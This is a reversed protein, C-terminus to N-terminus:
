KRCAEPLTLSSRNEGSTGITITPAPFHPIVLNTNADAGTLVLRLREDPALRAGIPQLFFRMRSFGAQDLPREASVVTGRSDSVPFGLTEYGPAGNTRHASNLVGDSLLELKGDATVRQLYGHLAVQPADSSVWIDVIPAGLFERPEEFPPSTLTLAGSSAHENLDPVVLPGLGIADHYRTQEGLGTNYDVTFSLPVGSQREGDTLGAEDLSYRTECQGLSLDTRRGWDFQKNATLLAYQFEPETRIGNDIGKLWYDAWRLQEIRRWHYSATERPDGAENPGHTWPGMMLKKPQSLNAHWFLTDVTAFDRWGGWNYVAIDTDAIRPALNALNNPGMEQVQTLMASADRTFRLRRLREAKEPHRRMLDALKQSSYVIEMLTSPNSTGAMEAVIDILEKAAPSQRMFYVMPNLAEPDNLREFRAAERVSGDTDADVRAVQVPVETVPNITSGETGDNTGDRQAERALWALGYKRLLGSGAWAAAYEDFTAVGPMIAQLPEPDTSAVLYQSMGEYSQGIMMVKGNSFPQKAIWDIVFKGDQAEQGSMDGLRLGFSAGTGRAEARVFAYGHGLLLGVGQVDGYKARGLADGIPSYSQGMPTQGVYHAVMGDPHETARWYRSYTFITPLPGEAVKGNKAPLYIDVALKTGDEVPVYISRREFGDYNATSYGLYCGPSSALDAGIQKPACGFTTNRWDGAAFDGSLEAGQSRACGVLALPALAVAVFHARRSAPKGIM